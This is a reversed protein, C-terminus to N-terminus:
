QMIPAVGINLVKTIRKRSLIIAECAVCLFEINQSTETASCVPKLRLQDSVGFVSKKADLGMYDIEILIIFWSFEAKERGIWGYM